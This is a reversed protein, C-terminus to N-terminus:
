LIEKGCDVCYKQDAKKTPIGCYACYNNTEQKGNLPLSASKTELPPLLEKLNKMM